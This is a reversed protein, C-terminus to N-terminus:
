SVIARRRLIPLVHSAFMELQNNMWPPTLLLSDAAGNAYQEIMEAIAAPSGILARRGKERRLFAGYEVLSIDARGYAAIANQLEADGELIEPQLSMVSESPAVDDAIGLREKALKSDDPALASLDRFLKRSAEADEGVYPTIGMIVDHNDPNRGLEEVSSKIRNYQERAAEVPLTPVYRGNTSAAGFRYSEPSNGAHILPILGPPTPVNLAGEVKFFEGSHRIPEVSGARLLDSDRDGRIADSDWSSWLKRLVDVYESARRYRTEADLHDEAGFNRAAEENKGTVVNLATRGGSLHALQAAARAVNYPESYTLNVTPIIGIRKTLAAIFAATTFSEPRSVEFPRRRQQEPLSV